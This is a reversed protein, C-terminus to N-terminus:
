TIIYHFTYSNWKEIQLNELLPVVSYNPHIHRGFKRSKLLEIIEVWQNKYKSNPNSVSIEEIILKKLKDCFKLFFSHVELINLDYFIIWIVIERKIWQCLRGGPNNWWDAQVDVFNSKMKKFVSGYLVFRREAGSPVGHLYM